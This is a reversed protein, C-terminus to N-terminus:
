ANIVCLDFANNAAIQALTEFPRTSSNVSVKKIRPKSKYEGSSLSQYAIVKTLCSEIADSCWYNTGAERHCPKPLLGSKVYKDVASVHRKILIAVEKINILM